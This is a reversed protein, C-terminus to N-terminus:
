IVKIIILFWPLLKATYKKYNRTYRTNEDTTISYTLAISINFKLKIIFCQIRFLIEIFIHDTDVLM